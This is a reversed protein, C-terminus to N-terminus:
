EEPEHTCGCTGHSHPPLPEGMALSSDLQSKEMMKAERRANAAQQQAQGAVSIMERLFVRNDEPVGEKEMQKLRRVVEKIGEPAAHEFAVELATVAEIVVRLDACSLAEVFRPILRSFDLSSQWCISLLDAQQAELQVTDLAQEVADVLGSYKIDILLGLLDQRVEPNTGGDLFVELLLPINCEGESERARRIAERQQEVTSSKLGQEIVAGQMKQKESM